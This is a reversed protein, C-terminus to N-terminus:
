SRYVKLIRRFAKIIGFKNVGIYRIWTWKQSNWQSLIDYIREKYKGAIPQSMIKVDIVM